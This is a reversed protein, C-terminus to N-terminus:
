KSSLVISFPLLNKAGTQYMGAYLMYLDHLSNQMHETNTNQFPHSIDASTEVIGWGGGPGLGRNWPGEYKLCTLNFAIMGLDPIQSHINKSEPLFDPILPQFM